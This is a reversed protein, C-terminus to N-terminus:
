LTLVSKPWNKPRCINDRKGFVRAYVFLKREGVSFRPHGLTRGECYIHHTIHSTTGQKWVSVVNAREISTLSPSDALVARLDVEAWARVDAEALNILQLFKNWDARM